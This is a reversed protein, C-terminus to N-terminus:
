KGFDYEEHKKHFVANMFNHGMERTSRRISNRINNKKENTLDEIKVYETRPLDSKFKMTRESGDIISLECDKSEITENKLLTRAQKRRLSQRISGILGVSHKNNDSKEDMNDMMEEHKNHHPHMLKRLSKRIIGKVNLSKKSHEEPEEVKDNGNLSEKSVRLKPSAPKTYARVFPAPTKFDFSENALLDNDEDDEGCGYLADLDEEHEDDDDDCAFPNGFNEQATAVPQAEINEDEFPNTNCKTEEEQVIPGTQTHFEEHQQNTKVTEEIIEETEEAERIETLKQTVKVTQEVEIQLSSVVTSTTNDDDAMGNKRLKAENISNELELQYQDLEKGIDMTTEEGISGLSAKAKVVPSFVLKDALLKSPTLQSMSMDRFDIRCGVTPVFPLGIKLSCPISPSNNPTVRQIEFPNRSAPVDQSKLNLASNVFCNANVIPTKERVIQFHFQFNM